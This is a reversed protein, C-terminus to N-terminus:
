TQLRKNKSNDLRGPRETIGTGADGPKKNNNDFDETKCRKRWLYLFGKGFILDDQSLIKGSAM